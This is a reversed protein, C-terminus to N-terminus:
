FDKFDDNEDFPIAEDPKVTRPEAGQGANRKAPPAAAHGQSGHPLAQHGGGAQAGSAQRRGGAAAGRVAETLGVMASLQNVMERLQDANASLEESASASEEANAANSQTVKDMQAVATNVQDVGQAQEDSATSIEAILGAVKESNTVIEGLAKGADEAIKTGNEARQVATEILSTTDKAAEASRQALNRVEDAVVAFGKGADGARAAEVAANLALLNTQFAIEEIVKIIKSIENSSQNIEEMAKLMDDMSRNGTEASTRAQEALGNASKANDANQRTQSAMEELASSTEELSAAQETAGEALQQSATSVQGSAEAVEDSGNNLSDIIGTLQRVIGRAVFFAIVGGALIGVISFIWVQTNTSGAADLMVEASMIEAAATSRVQGLLDQVDELHKSTQRAFVTKAKEEGTKLENEAAIIQRFEAKLTELAPDITHQLDMMAADVEGTRIHEEIAIAGEHLERHPKEVARVFADLADFDERYAKAEDSQLWQGFGCRTPDTQVGIEFLEGRAFAEARAILQENNEDLYQGTGVIWGWEPYLRVYSLKMGIGGGPKRWHYALFGDGTQGAIRSMERFIYTNDQPSATDSLDRGELEPQTPHLVCEVDEDIIFFYGTDNEGYRMKRLRALASEKPSAADAATSATEAEAEITAVAMDVADKLLVRAQHIGGIELALKHNVQKVWAEHDALLGNLTTSLGPHPQRYHEQIEQASKHLHEHPDEIEELIGTLAPVRQEAEERSIDKDTDQMTGYYWKGFACQTHDMTVQVEDPAEGIGKVDTDTFLSNLRATWDLHDIERQKMAGDLKNGFIVDRANGVIGGIGLLSAGAVVLLALLVVGVAVGIKKGVTWNM